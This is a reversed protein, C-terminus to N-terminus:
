PEDGSTTDTLEGAFSRGVVAIEQAFSGLLESGAATRAAYDAPDVPQEASFRARHLERGHVQDILVWRATLVFRGDDVVGFAVVDVVLQVDVAAGLWPHLLIDLSESASLNEALVAAFRTDLPEAWRVFSEYVVRGEVTRTAIEQGHLYRPLRVPGVGLRVSEGEAPPAGTVPQAGILYFDSPPTSSCSTSVLALLTLALAVPAGLVRRTSASRANGSRANGSCANM